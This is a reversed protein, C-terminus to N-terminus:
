GQAGIGISTLINNHPQGWYFGQLILPVVNCAVLIFIMLAHKGMWELVVTLRTYGYVDVMIYISAFLIGAAGTTFCMYSFSYLVKNIHMGCVECIVALAVLGCSHVFWQLLRTKHDKFHVIIHGYQLGLLCSVTAM